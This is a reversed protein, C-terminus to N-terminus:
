PPHIQCEVLGNGATRKGDEETVRHAGAELTYRRNGLPKLGRDKVVLRLRVLTRVRTKFTHRM